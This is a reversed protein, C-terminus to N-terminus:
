GYFSFDGPTAAFRELAYEKGISTMKDIDFKKLIISEIADKLEEANKPNIYISHPGGAEPLSSCNSSIVPTESLLAEVVPLGFGEYFSPYIFASAKHYICKLEAVSELNKIWHIEKELGIKKALKICEKKYKKGKGVVVLPLRIKSDILSLANILTGLNKRAEISGVSLIYRKPLQHKKHTVKCLTEDLPEYYIPHCSQYIVEIKSDEIQYFKQIDKKTSESIAIIKDANNCSYRFKFDYIKRDILPFTEPLIKFIMDHITVVSKIKTKQIGIPIEHSLGHFIDLGDKQLQEVIGYSRWYSKLFADSSRLVFAPNDIFKETLESKTLKPSYLFYENEPYHKALNWVFTRSYNGLGTKNNFLRKADFGIRM